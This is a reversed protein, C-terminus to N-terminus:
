DLFTMFSPDIEYVKGEDADEVMAVVVRQFLQPGVIEDVAFFGHFLGNIMNNGDITFSVKRM